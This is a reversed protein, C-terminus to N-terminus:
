KMSEDRRLIEVVNPDDAAEPKVLYIASLHGSDGRRWVKWVVAGAPAEGLKAMIDRAEQSEAGLEESREAVLAHWRETAEEHTSYHELRRVRVVEQAENYDLVLWSEGISFGKTKCRVYSQSQMRRPEHRCFKKKELSAETADRSTGLSVPIRLDAGAGCGILLVSVLAALVNRSGHKM